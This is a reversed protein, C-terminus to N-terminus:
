EYLKRRLPLYLTMIIMIFAIPIFHRLFSGFDPEFLAFVLAFAIFLIFISNLTDSEKIKKRQLVITVLTLINFILFLLYLINGRLVLEIPFILRILNILYNLIEFIYGDKNILNNIITQANVSDTRYKNTNDRNNFISNFISNNTYYLSATVAIFLLITFVIFVKKDFKKSNFIKIYLYIIGIIALYSRFLISFIIFTLSVLITQIKKNKVKKIFALAILDIVFQVLDKSINFVYINLLFLLLSIFICDIFNIKWPLKKYMVLLLIPNLILGLIISGTKANNIHFLRVLPTFISATFEYAKDGYGNAGNCIGIIHNSDFLYKDPLVKLLFIKAIIAVLIFIIFAVGKTINKSKILHHRAYPNNQVMEM